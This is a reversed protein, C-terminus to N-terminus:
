LRECCTRWNAFAGIISASGPRICCLIHWVMASLGCLDEGRPTRGITRDRRGHFVRKLRAGGPKGAPFTAFIHRVAGEAARLNLIKLRVSQFEENGRLVQVDSPGGARNRRVRRGVARWSCRSLPASRARREGRACFSRSRHDGDCRSFMRRARVSPKPLTALQRSVAEIPPPSSLRGGHVAELLVRGVVASIQGVVPTQRGNDADEQCCDRQPQEEVKDAQDSRRAM